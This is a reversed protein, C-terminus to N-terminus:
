EPWIDFAVCIRRESLGHPFTRHYAHSPFTLVSGSRPREIELGYANSADQGVDDVPVGFALCGGEDDGDAISDPVHVYYVGSMWGFQHVHWTEFGTSETIVCWSHLIGNSPRAAIWPHDSDPLQAIHREVVESLGDVLTNMLPRKGALPEDIRWTRESATGYRDYRLGPHALLEEALATNFAELSPWGAPTPLQQRQGFLPRNVNARAADFKGLKAFALTRAALVRSHGVGKAALEATLALVERAEGAKLLLSALRKCANKNLPNLELALRLTDHALGPEGLRIEAKGRDALAAARQQVDGALGFAADAADRALADAPPRELALYAQGTALLDDFTREHAPIESLLAIVDEFADAMMAQFALRRRLVLSGPNRLLAATLLVRDEQNTMPLATEVRIRRHENVSFM